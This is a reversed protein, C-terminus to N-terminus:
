RVGDGMLLCRLTRVDGIVELLIVFLLCQSCIELFVFVHGGDAIVIWFVFFFLTCLDM